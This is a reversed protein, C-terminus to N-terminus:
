LCVDCHQPSSSLLFSPKNDSLVNLRVFFFGIPVGYVKAGGTRLPKLLNHEISDWCCDYLAGQNHPGRMLLAVHKAWGQYGGDQGFVLQLKTKHESHWTLKIRERLMNGAERAFIVVFVIGILQM